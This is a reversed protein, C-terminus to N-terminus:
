GTVTFFQRMPLRRGGSCSWSGLAVAGALGILGGILV